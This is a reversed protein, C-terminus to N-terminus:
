PMESGSRHPERGQYSNPDLTVAAFWECGSEHQVQGGLHGSPLTVTAVAVARCRSCATGPKVLPMVHRVDTM